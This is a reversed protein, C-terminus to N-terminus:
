GIVKVSPLEALFYGKIRDILDLEWKHLAIGGIQYEPGDELRVYIDIPDSGIEPFVFNPTVEYTNQLSERDILHNGVKRSVKQSIGDNSITTEDEMKITGTEKLLFGRNPDDVFHSLINIRFEEPSFRGTWSPKTMLGQVVVDRTGENPNCPVLLQVNFAGAVHIFFNDKQFGDPNSKVYDVIGSLSFVKLTPIQEPDWFEDYNESTPDYIVTKAGIKYSTPGAMKQIKDIAERIM